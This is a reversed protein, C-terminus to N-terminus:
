PTDLSRPHPYLSSADVGPAGVNWQSLQELRGKLSGRIRASGTFLTAGIPQQGVFQQRKPFYDGNFFFVIHYLSIRTSIKKKIHKQITNIKLENEM